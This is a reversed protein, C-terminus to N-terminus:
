EEDWDLAKKKLIYYYGALLILVFTVMPILGYFGSLERFSVAWPYMFIVEIDFVIFIMAVLYFRVTVRTRTSGVPDMGSEYPTLKEPNNRKPGIIKGISLLVVALIIAISIVVFIPFYSELM